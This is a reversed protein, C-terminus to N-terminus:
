GRRRKRGVIGLVALGGAVLLATAPEPVFHLRLVGFVPVKTNPPNLSTRMLMPTVLQVVGSAKATSSTASAPGHAFGQRTQTGSDTAISAVGVTWPAGQLSFKAGAGPSFTNVTITGGIGLGRTGGATLPMPLYAFCGPFLICLKMVGAVPLVNQTLPGGGSIPRFTGAGLSAPPTSLRLSVISANVPDTVIGTGTATIAGPPSIALTSLHVGGGSGNVLASGGGAGVAQLNFLAGVDITLTGEWGLITAGATMPAAVWLLMGLVFASVTRM